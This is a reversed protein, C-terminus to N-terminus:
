QRAPWLTMQFGQASHRLCVEGQLHFYYGPIETIPQTGKPQDPDPDTIWSRGPVHHMLPVSSDLGIMSEVTEKIYWSGSLDQIVSRSGSWGLPACGYPWMQPTPYRHYGMSNSDAKHGHTKPRKPVVDSYHFNIIYTQLKFGSYTVSIANYTYHYYYRM